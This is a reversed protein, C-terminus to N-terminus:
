KLKITVFRTINQYKVLLVIHKKKDIEKMAENFDTSNRIKKNNIQMLIMGPKLGAKEAISNFKVSTIVVGELDSSFQWKKIIDPSLDKVESVELGLEVSKNIAMQPEPALGLKVEINQKNGNRLVLLKVKDGPNMLAIEKRFSIMNKIPINNYSLIVDGQKIGAKDAPSDKTVDAVLVADTSNLDLAEAMEQDITQLYIGLHGRVVSGKEIIQDMVHKAMNSPISFSIGLYGGTQSVIATNIGVINGDLDLLPGGSNGPNIAADTQIFDELDTIRLDQRGKASVVGVTLTAKLQFPSGIAIVWEGIDLKDSDAFTLFPLNDADIKIVALDTKPDTGIVKAIYDKGDNLTVTITDADKVIHNNTLIYGDKSVICGSGAACQPQGQIGKGNPSGFFRKFFEDHFYEFPDSYDNPNTAECVGNYTVKIFVVAPIAKKGVETFAKSTQKLYSKDLDQAIIQSFFLPFAAFFLIFIRKM